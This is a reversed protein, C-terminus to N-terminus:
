HNELHIILATHKIRSDTAGDYATDTTEGILFRLIHYLASASIIGILYQQEVTKRFYQALLTIGIPRHLKVTRFHPKFNIFLPMGDTNEELFGLIGVLQYFFKHQKGVFCHGCSDPTWFAFALRFSKHIAHM